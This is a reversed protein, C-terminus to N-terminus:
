FLSLTEIKLFNDTSLIRWSNNRTSMLLDISAKGVRTQESITDTPEMICQVNTVPSESLYKKESPDRVLSFLNQRSFYEYLQREIREKFRKEGGKRTLQITQFLVTFTKVDVFVEYFVATHTFAM